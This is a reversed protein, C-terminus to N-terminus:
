ELLCKDGKVGMAMIVISKLFTEGIEDRLPVICFICGSVDRMKFLKDIVVELKLLPEPSRSVVQTTIQQPIILSKETNSWSALIFIPLRTFLRYLNSIM